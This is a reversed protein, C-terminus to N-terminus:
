FGDINRFGNGIRNHYGLWCRSRRFRSGLLWSPSWLLNGSTRLRARKPQLSPELTYTHEGPAVQTNKPM